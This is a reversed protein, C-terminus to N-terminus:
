KIHSNTDPVWGGKGDPVDHAPATMKNFSVFGRVFMLLESAIPFEPTLLLLMKEFAAVQVDYKGAALDLLFQSAPKTADSNM